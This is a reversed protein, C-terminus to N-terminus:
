EGGNCIKCPIGNRRHAEARSIDICNVTCRKAWLCSRAHYKGNATNFAVIDKDSATQAMSPLTQWGAINAQGALLFAIVFTPIQGLKM